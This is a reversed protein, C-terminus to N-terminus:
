YNNKAMVNEIWDLYNSVKAYVGPYGEFACGIGWSVVGVLVPSGNNYAVLPGGSDGQCSDKGKEGACLMNDSITYGTYDQECTEKDVFPVEVKLLDESISGGSSTTGWGQLILKLKLNKFKRALFIM